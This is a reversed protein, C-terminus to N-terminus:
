RASGARRTGGVTRNWKAGLKPAGDSILEGLPKPYEILRALWVGQKGYEGIVRGGLLVGGSQGLDAKRHYLIAHRSQMAEKASPDWGILRTNARALSPSSMEIAPAQFPALSPGLVVTGGPVCRAAEALLPEQVADGWYTLEFGLRQAGSLGGVQLGYHSLYCPHYAILGIGQLGLFITLALVRTRATLAKPVPHRVIWGAGMGVLIAWFPFIPLFLRVGDYVPVGPWSFVALLFCMAGIVLFVDPKDRRCRIESWLGLIGLLLLGLPLAVLFTVVPYHWPVAHAAWVKGLYFVHIPQRGTGSALFQKLHALPALWLWPWGALLTAMGAAIWVGAGILARWGRRWVLWVMVPPLVLVGHLRVLMALGWAIGAAAFHWWRGGRRDAEIVALVAAVFFLSTFTDLAALHAHGFVRPVLAVAAAAVTGALRGEARTTWLGVLLVLLGFALAPAFRSATVSVALPEDASRDFLRHICGLMWNGLPPHVPPGSPTWPFNNRINAPTFFTLGQLRLATVLYKGV